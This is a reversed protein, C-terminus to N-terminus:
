ARPWSGTEVIHELLAEIGITAFIRAAIRYGEGYIPSPDTEISYSFYKRLEADSPGEAGGTAPEKRPDKGAANALSELYLSAVLQCCGEEVQPEIPSAGRHRRAVVLRGYSPHLKLWAHVAEHAVISASLDSPLGSLCLVATVETSAGGGVSVDSFSPLLSSGSYAFSPSRFTQVQTESLCLGRTTSTTSSVHNSSHSKANLTSHSVAIVPISKMAPWVPLGLSSSLFELVSLWVPKLDNSDLVVTRCCSNCLRRGEDCLDNFPDHLPEMRACGQCRGSERDHKECNRWGSFFPHHSYVYAGSKSDKPVTSRCVSCKPAFLESYCSSHVPLPRGHLDLLDKALNFTLDTIPSSCGACTFCSPHYRQDRKVTLIQGGSFGFTLSGHCGYCKNPDPLPPASKPPLPSTARPVAAKAGKKAERDEEDQLRQALKRDHDEALLGKAATSEQKGGGGGGGSKKPPAAVDDGLRSLAAALQEDEQLAKLEERRWQEEIRRAVQEDDDPRSQGPTAKASNPSLPPASAGFFAREQAEWDPNPRTDTKFGPYNNSM